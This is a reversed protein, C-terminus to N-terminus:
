HWRSLVFAKRFLRPIPHDKRAIRGHIWSNTVTGNTAATSNRSSTKRRHAEVVLELLGAKYGAIRLGSNSRRSWCCHGSSFRAAAHYTLWRHIRRIRAIGRAAPRRRAWRGVVLGFRRRASSRPWRWRGAVLHRHRRQPLAFSPQVAAPRDLSWCRIVLCAASDRIARAASHGLCNRTVDKGSRRWSSSMVDTRPHSSTAAVRCM